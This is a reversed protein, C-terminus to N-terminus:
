KAGDASAPGDWLLRNLREAVDKLVPDTIHQYRSRQDTSWGMIGMVTRDPVGLLLLVTAATHRADHLRADRLGAAVLLDKWEHYDTGPNLPCGTETAFLWGGDQGGPGEGAGGFFGQVAGALQVQGGGADLRGWM